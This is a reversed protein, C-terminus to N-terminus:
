GPTTSGAGPGTAGSQRAAGPARAFPLAQRTLPLAPPDEASTVAIHVPKASRSSKRGPALGSRVHQRTLLTRAQARSNAQRRVGLRGRDGCSRGPWRLLGWAAVTGWALAGCALHAGKGRPSGLGRTGRRFYKLSKRMNHGRGRSGRGRDRNQGYNRRTLRLAAPVRRTQPPAQMGERDPTWLALGTSYPLAARARRRAYPGAAM